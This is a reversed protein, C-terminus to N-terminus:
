IALVFPNFDSYPEQLLASPGELLLLLVLRVAATL